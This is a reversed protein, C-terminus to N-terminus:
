LKRGIKMLQWPLTGEGVFYEADSEQEADFNYNNSSKLNVHEFEKM